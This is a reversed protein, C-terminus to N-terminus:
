TSLSTDEYMQFEELGQGNQDKWRSPANASRPGASNPDLTTVTESSELYGHEKMVLELVSSLDSPDEEDANQSQLSSKPGDDNRM